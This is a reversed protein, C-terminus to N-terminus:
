EKLLDELLLEHYLYVLFEKSSLEFDKLYDGYENDRANVIEHLILSSGSKIDDVLCVDAEALNKLIKEIKQKQGYGGRPFIRQMLEVFNERQPIQPKNIFYHELILQIKLFDNTEKIGKIFQSMEEDWAMLALSQINDSIDDSITEGQRFSGTFMSQVFDRPYKKECIVEGEAYQDYRFYLKYLINQYNLKGWNGHVQIMVNQLSLSRLAIDKDNDCEEIALYICYFVLACKIRKPFNYNGLSNNSIYEAVFDNLEKCERNMVYCDALEEFDEFSFSENSIYESCAKALTDTETEELPVILGCQILINNLVNNM